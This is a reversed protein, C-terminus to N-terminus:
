ADRGVGRPLALGIALAVTLDRGEKWAQKWRAAGITSEARELFPDMGMRDFLYQRTTLDERIAQAAGHLCAAAVADDLTGRAAAVAALGEISEAIGQRDGLDRFRLLSAQFLSVAREGDDSLLSAFGLYCLCRARFDDTGLEAYMDHATSLLDEAEPNAQM